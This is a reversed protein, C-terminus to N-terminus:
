NGKYNPHEKIHKPQDFEVYTAYKMLENDNLHPRIVVDNKPNNRIEKLGNNWNNWYGNARNLQDFRLQKYKDPRWWAYHYTILDTPYLMPYNQSEFNLVVDKYFEMDGYCICIKRQKYKGGAPEWNVKETYFQTEIFDIWTSKFGQNPKLQKMYGVIEDTSSEHHFVDGELPFIYDGENVDVGLDNFNSYAITANQSASTINEDYDMKNLIFNIHPYDKQAKYIIEELELFDFGRHNDLTYKSIFDETINTSGEPGRPFLGENYIIYDPNITEIINSIQFKILHTDCFVPMIVIKKSM